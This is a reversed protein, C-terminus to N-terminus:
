IGHTNPVAAGEERYHVFYCRTLTGWHFFFVFFCRATLHSLQKASTWFLSDVLPLSCYDVPLQSFCARKRAPPPKAACAVFRDSLQLVGRIIKSNQSQLLDYVFSHALCECRGKTLHKKFIPCLRHMTTNLKPPPKVALGGSM